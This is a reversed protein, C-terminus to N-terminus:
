TNKNIIWIGIVAFVIFILSSFLYLLPSNELYGLFGTIIGGTITYKAIDFFMDGVRIKTEKTFSIKM